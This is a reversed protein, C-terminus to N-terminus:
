LYKNVDYSDSKNHLHGIIESPYLIKIREESHIGKYLIKFLESDNNKDCRIYPIYEERYYIAVIKGKTERYSYDDMFSITDGLQMVSM